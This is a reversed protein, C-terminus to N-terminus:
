IFINLINNYKAMIGNDVVVAVFLLARVCKGSYWGGATATLM